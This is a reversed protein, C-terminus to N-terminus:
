FRIKKQLFFFFFQMLDLCDRVAWAHSVRRYFSVYQAEDAYQFSISLTFVEAGKEFYVIIM